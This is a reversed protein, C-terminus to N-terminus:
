NIQKAEIVFWDQGEMDGDSVLWKQFKDNIYVTLWGDKLLCYDKNAWSIRAISKGKIIERMADPFSMTIAKGQQRPIPTLLEADQVPQNGIVQEDMIM